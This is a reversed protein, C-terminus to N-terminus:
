GVTTELSTGGWGNLLDRGEVIVTSVDDPIEIGSLSRTFPQEDGHPHTLLRVGYVTGDSGVLRWGDAYREPTDYPSSITVAFTFTDDADVSVTAAM